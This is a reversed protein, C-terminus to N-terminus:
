KVPTRNAYANALAGLFDGHADRISMTAGSVVDVHVQMEDPTLAALKALDEENTTDLKIPRGASTTNKAFWEELEAVTKGVFFSQYFDMQEYWENSENMHYSDGRQRKTVWANVEAAASEATNVSVGSVKETEHDTINYGEKDPWGSFHPMSAGDYNPTAIEYGDIFVDVIRGEADFIASAMAINFSYVPVDESDKGPGNRFAVTHGLGQYLQGNVATMAISAKLNLVQGVAISDPTKLQPNVALLEKLTMGNDMAIKWLVDGAKVTYTAYNGSVAVPVAISPGMTPTEEVWTSASTTADVDGFVFTSSLMVFLALAISFKKNM